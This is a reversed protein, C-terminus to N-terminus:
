RKNSSLDADIQKRLEDIKDVNTVSYKYKYRYVLDSNLPKFIILPVNNIWRDFFRSLYPSYQTIICELRDIEIMIYIRIRKEDMVKKLEDKKNMMIKQKREIPM